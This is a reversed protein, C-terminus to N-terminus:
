LRQQPFTTTRVLKTNMILFNAEKLEAAKVQNNKKKKHSHSVHGFKRNSNTRVPFTNMHINIILPM